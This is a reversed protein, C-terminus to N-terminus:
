LRGTAQDIRALSTGLTAIARHFSVELTLLSRFDRIVRDFDVKGQAYSKQDIDLTQRAQPLITERYLSATKDAARAQELLDALLTDYRRRLDDITAHAAAHRFGAEHEMANYKDAWLPLNVSAGLSWADEGVNVVSTPPRNNDMFLWSFNVTVDPVGALSAVKVGWATAQVRMRAAAIEPQHEFALSSLEEVSTGPLRVSISQFDAVPSHPPRNLLENLRAKASVQQQNLSVLEEDLRSLELTALVVDGQTAGGTRLRQTAVDILSKLLNQNEGNIRTQQGLLYLRYCSERVEAAIRLREAKLVQEVAHAEYATQQGQAGLRKLSPIRQSLSMNARQSGAATEIPHGFANAGLMPDPLAEAQPVKHWAANVEHRLRVLRTNSSLAADVLSEIEDASASPLLAPEVFVATESDASLVPTGNLQSESEDNHSALQIAKGPPKNAKLHLEGSLDAANDTTGNAAVSREAPIRAVDSRMATSRCGVVMLVLM